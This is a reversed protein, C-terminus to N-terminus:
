TSEGKFRERHAQWGTTVRAELETKDLRLGFVAAMERLVDQAATVQYGTEARFIIEDALNLLSALALATDLDNDMAARFRAQIPQTNIPREGSDVATLAALLKEESQAAKDLELQDHAWSQRYHHQALYIRLADPSYKELLDRVM